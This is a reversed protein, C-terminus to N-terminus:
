RPGSLEAAPTIMMSKPRCKRPSKRMLMSYLSARTDPGLSVAIAALQNVGLQRSALMRQVRPMLDVSHALQSYWTEEAWMQGDGWLALSSFATATDIALIM